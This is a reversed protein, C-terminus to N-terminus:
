LITSAARAEQGSKTRSGILAAMETPSCPMARYKPLVGALSEGGVVRDFAVLIPTKAHRASSRITHLVGCLKDSSVDVIALDHSERCIRILEEQNRARAPEMGAQYLMSRIGSLREESDVVVLARPKGNAAATAEPRKAPATGLAQFDMVVMPNGVYRDSGGSRFTSILNEM